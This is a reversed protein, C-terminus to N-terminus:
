AHLPKPQDGGYVNVMPVAILTGASIKFGKINILRRIIEIGNLEDGHVAASIFITPARKRVAFLIYRCTCMLM